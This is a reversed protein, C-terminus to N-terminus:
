RYKRAVPYDPLQDISTYRLISRMVILCRDAYEVPVHSHNYFYIHVPDLRSILATISILNYEEVIEGLLYALQANCLKTSGYFRRYVSRVRKEPDSSKCARIFLATINDM